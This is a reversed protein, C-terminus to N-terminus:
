KKHMLQRLESLVRCDLPKLDPSKPPEETAKIFERSVEVFHSM